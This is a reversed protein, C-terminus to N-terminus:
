HGTVLGGKVMFSTVWGSLSTFLLSGDVRGLIRLLKTKTGTRFSSPVKPLQIILLSIYWNIHRDILKIKGMKTKINKFMTTM